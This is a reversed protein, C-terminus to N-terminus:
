LLRQILERLSDEYVVNGVADRQSNVDALHMAHESIKLIFARNAADEFDFNYKKCDEKVHEIFIEIHDFEDNSEM